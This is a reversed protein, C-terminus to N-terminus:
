THNTEDKDIRRLGEIDTAELGRLTNFLVRKLQTKTLKFIRYPRHSGDRTLEVAYSGPETITGDAISINIATAYLAVEGEGFMPKNPLKNFQLVYVSKGNITHNM